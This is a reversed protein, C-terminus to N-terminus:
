ECGLQALPVQVNVQEAPVLRQLPAHMRNVLAAFQPPHPAAHAGSPPVGKQAAPSSPPVYEHAEPHGAPAPVRHPPAHTSASLSVLLQPPHPLAHVVLTGLASGAQTAPAQVIVHL